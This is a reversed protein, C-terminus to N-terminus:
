VVDIWGVEDKRVMKGVGYVVYSLIEVEHSRQGKSTVASESQTSAMDQKRHGTWRTMKVSAFSLCPIFRLIKNAEVKDAMVVSCPWAPFIKVGAVLWRVAYHMNAHSSFVSDVALQLFM